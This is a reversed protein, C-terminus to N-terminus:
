GGHAVAVSAVDGLGDLTITAGDRTVFALSSGARVFVGSGDTSWPDSSGTQFETDLNAPSLDVTAGSGLNALRPLPQADDYDVYFMTLGDPSVSGGNFLAAFVDLDLQLPLREGTTHDIRVYGCRLADDCERAVVHNRGTAAVMGPSLRRAEGSDVAYSGGAEFVLLDGNPLFQTFADAYLALPDESTTMSSAAGARDVSWVPPRRGNWGSPGVLFEGSDGRPWVAGIGSGIDVDVM